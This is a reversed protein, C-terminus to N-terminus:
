HEENVVKLDLKQEVKRTTEDSMKVKNCNPINVVMEASLKTKSNADCLTKNTAGHEALLTIQHAM